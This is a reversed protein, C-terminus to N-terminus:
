HEESLDAPRSGKLDEMPADWWAFEQGEDMRAVARRIYSERYLLDEKEKERSEPVEEAATELSKLIRNGVWSSFDGPNWEEQEGGAINRILLSYFSMSTAKSMVQKALPSKRASLACRSCSSRLQLVFATRFHKRFEDVEFNISPDVLWDISNNLGRTVLGGKGSYVCRSLLWGAMDRVANPVIFTPNVDM